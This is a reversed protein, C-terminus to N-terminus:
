RDTQNKRRDTGTLILSLLLGAGGLFFVMTAAIASYTEGTAFRTILGTFLSFLLLGVALAYFAARIKNMGFRKRTERTLVSYTFLTGGAVVFIGSGIVENGSLNMFYLMASTFLGFLILLVGAVTGATSIRATMTSYVAQKATDQGRKRMDEVLGSLDGMSIVAEKFAQEGEMGRAHYDAIKEKMNTALEEKLDFLQQTEGVGSFLNDIYAKVKGDIPKNKKM